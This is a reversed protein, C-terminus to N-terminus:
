VDKIVQPKFDPKVYNALLKAYDPYRATMRLCWLDKVQSTLAPPSMPPHTLRSVRRRAQWPVSHISVRCYKSHISAGGNGRRRSKAFRALWKGYKTVKWVQCKSRGTM